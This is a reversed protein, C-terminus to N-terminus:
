APTTGHATQTRQKSSLRPKPPPTETMRGEPPVGSLWYGRYDRRADSLCLEDLVLRVSDTAKQVDLRERAEIEVFTGLDRVRDLAVYTDRYAFTERVKDVDVVPLCSVPFELNASCTSFITPRRM